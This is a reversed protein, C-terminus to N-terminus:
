KKILNYKEKVAKLCPKLDYFIEGGSYLVMMLLTSNTETKPADLVLYVPIKFLMALFIEIITGVTQIDKKMYAIIFDSRIVAEYDGWGDFENKTNGDIIKRYRLLKFVEILDQNPRINGLWIKNMEFIFRDWLGAKKLGIVYNVHDGTAKGTKNAEKAIPDYIVLSPHDLEITAETRWQTAKDPSGEIYGALYTTYEVTDKHHRANM